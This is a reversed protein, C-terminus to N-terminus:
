KPWRALYEGLLQKVDADGSGALQDQLFAAAEPAPVNILLRCLQECQEYPDTTWNALAWARIRSAVEPDVAENHTWQDLALLFGWALDASSEQQGDAWAFLTQVGARVDEIDPFSGEAELMDRITEKSM